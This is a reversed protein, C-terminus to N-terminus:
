VSHDIADPRNGLRRDTVFEVCFQRWDIRSLGAAGPTGTSKSSYALVVAIRPFSRPSCHRFNADTGFGFLSRNVVIKLSRNTTRGGFQIGSLPADHCRGSVLTRVVAVAFGFSFCGFHIRGNSHIAGMKRATGVIPLGTTTSPRHIRSLSPCPM